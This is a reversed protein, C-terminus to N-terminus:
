SRIFDSPIAWGNAGPVIVTRNCWRGNHYVGSVKKFAMPDPKSYLIDWGDWSLMPNRSVIKEAEAVSKVFVLKM